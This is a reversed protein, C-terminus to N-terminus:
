KKRLCVARSFGAYDKLIEVAQWNEEVLKLVQEAQNAGIEMLLYGARQLCLPAQTMLKKIIELGTPGAVLARRPEFDRVPRDLKKWEEESVYPPNSVILDFKKRRQIFYDLLNSKVFNINRVKNRAANERAMKLARLSLDCATIRAEPWERGLAVAINGCGTGVDLINPREPLELSLAKEVLLETEPRPILVQRNVKFQLSWFEKKGTLYAIPWGEKRKQLLLWVKKQLRRSVPQDLHMFFSNEELGTALQLLLRAEVFPCSSFTLQAALQRFLAELKQPQNKKYNL